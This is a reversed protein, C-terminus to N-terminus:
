RRANPTGGSEHVGGGSFALLEGDGLLVGRTVRVLETRLADLQDASPVLRCVGCLLVLRTRLRDRVPGLLSIDVVPTAMVAQGCLLPRLESCKPTLISPELLLALEQSFGRGPECLLGARFALRTQASSRSGPRTEPLSSPEAEPLIWSHSTRTARAGALGARVLGVFEKCVM